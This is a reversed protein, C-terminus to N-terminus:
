MEDSLHQREQHLLRVPGGLVEAARQFGLFEAKLEPRISASDRKGSLLIWGRGGLWNVGDFCSFCTSEVFM